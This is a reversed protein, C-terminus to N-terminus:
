LPPYGGTEPYKRKNEEEWRKCRFALVGGLLEWHWPLRMLEELSFTILNQRDDGKEIREIVAEAMKIMVAFDPDSSDLSERFQMLQESVLMTKFDKLCVTELCYALDASM